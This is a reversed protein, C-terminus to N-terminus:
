AIGRKGYADLLRQGTLRDGMMVVQGSECLTREIAGDNFTKDIVSKGGETDQPRNDYWMSSLSHCHIGAVGRAWEEAEMKIKHDEVMEKYETM